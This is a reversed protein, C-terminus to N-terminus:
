KAQKIIKSYHPMKKKAHLGCSIIESLISEEEQSINNLYKDAFKFAKESVIMYSIRYDGNLTSKYMYASANEGTHLRASYNKRPKLKINKETNM